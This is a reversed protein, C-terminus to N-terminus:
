RGVEIYRFLYEDTEHDKVAFSKVVDLWKPGTCVEAIAGTPPQGAITCNQDSDAFGVSYKYGVTCVTPSALVTPATSFPPM